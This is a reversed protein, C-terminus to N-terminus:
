SGTWAGGLGAVVFAVAGAAIVMLNVAVASWGWRLLAGAHGPDDEVTGLARGALVAAVVGGPGLVCSMTLVVGAALTALAHNRVDEVGRYPRRVRGYPEAM